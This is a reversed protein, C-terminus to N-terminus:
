RGKDARQVAMGLFDERGHVVRGAQTCGTKQSAEARHNGGRQSTASLM